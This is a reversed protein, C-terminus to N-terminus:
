QDLKFSAYMGMNIDPFIYSNSLPSQFYEVMSNISSPLRHSTTTDSFSSKITTQNPFLNDPTFKTTINMIEFVTFANASSCPGGPEDDEDHGNQCDKIGDCTQNRNICKSGDNCRFPDYSLCVSVFM